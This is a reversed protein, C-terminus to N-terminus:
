FLMGAYAWAFLLAWAVIGAQLVCYDLLTM